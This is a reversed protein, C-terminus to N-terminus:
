ALAQQARKLAKRPAGANSRSRLYTRMAKHSFLVRGRLGRGVKRGVLRGNAHLIRLTNPQYGYLWSAEEYSMWHDEAMISKRYALLVCERLAEPLHRLDITQPAAM